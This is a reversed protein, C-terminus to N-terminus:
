EGGGALAIAARLTKIHHWEEGLHDKTDGVDEAVQLAAKCAALLTPAAAILYANAENEARVFRRLVTAVPEPGNANICDHGYIEPLGSVTWPGPTHKENM